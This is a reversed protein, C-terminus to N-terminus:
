RRKVWPEDTPTISLSGQWPRCLALAEERSEDLWRHWDDRALLVPMRTHVGQMAPAAETMVMAYTDGWEASPRWLGAFAFIEEGEPALWTRTMAGRQGEAEAWCSAPVLCRRASFSASWFPTALKDTRANNVPKPKLKQGKAGTLTLPFGWVMQRFTGGILVLGPYGPYVEEGANGAPITTQSTIERFVDALQSGSQQLRYLNCMNSGAM